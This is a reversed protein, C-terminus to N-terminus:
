GNIGELVSLLQLDQLEKVERKREQKMSGGRGYFKFNRGSETKLEDVLRARPNFHDLLEGKDEQRTKVPFYSVYM